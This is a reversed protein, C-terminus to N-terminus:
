SNIKNEVVNFGDYLIIKYRKSHNYFLFADAIYLYNIWYRSLYVLTLLQVTVTILFLWNLATRINVRFYIEDKWAAIQIIIFYNFYGTFFLIVRNNCVFFLLEPMQIVLM